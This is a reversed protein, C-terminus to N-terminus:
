PPEIGAGGWTGRQPGSVGHSLRLTDAQRLTEGKSVRCMCLGSHGLGSYKNLKLVNVGM